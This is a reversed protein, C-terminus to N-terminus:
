VMMTNPLLSMLRLHENVIHAPMEPQIGASLREWLDKNGCTLRLAEPWTKVASNGGVLIGDQNHGIKEALSSNGSCITPIRLNQALQLYVPSPEAWCSPFLIWDLSQMARVTQSIDMATHLWTSSSAILQRLYKDMEDLCAQEQKEPCEGYIELHIKAQEQPTLSSVSSLISQLGFVPAVPGFYGYKTYDSKRYPIRMGSKLLCINEIFHLKEVPVGWELYREQQWVSPLIIGDAIDLFHKFQRDRMWLSVSDISACKNCSTTKEWKCPSDESNLMYPSRSCVPNYDQMTLYIPVDANYHRTIELIGYNFEPYPHIHIFDPKIANLFALYSLQSEPALDFVPFFSQIKEASWSYINESELKIAYDGGKCILLLIAKDIHPEKAFSQRLMGAMLNNEAAIILISAPTGPKTM